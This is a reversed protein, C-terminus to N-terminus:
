CLGYVVMMTICRRIDCPMCCTLWVYLMCCVDYLMMMLLCCIGYVTLICCVDYDDGDDCEYMM